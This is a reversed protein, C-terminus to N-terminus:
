SFNSSILPTILVTVWMVPLVIVLLFLKFIDFPYDSRYIVHCAICYGVLFAQLYWLPLWFPLDCSLFYLSWCSFNSSILPTILVTYWMVPFVIVLLFLKFIDFPYDSRYIVHCSICHGVLFTQLYWLPLWFPLECSMFYLSWCSFNSSILTTILVTYWMVPFVIVLLFPKFIDFPYYSRYSSHCAICHGVLFTQLYWLPLWFPLDCSLCYLSWCSFSSSILPTILVTFWMVPFVIVLLFLKFIDCPYDSRYRVHCAICHGVLFTQLYWLPLWFPLDCSMFYLSWCSFNSSILTTILVTYWMVPFVIVLLFPKFIDFPYYSRYSSHCAICHGVLFTQLYWLPLWFPLDCSLCYLSWCSFSSSILPTILVTYWMVPLVIVLLFLKFINFHYDSRYSVHCAICHGVLFTQLYWLPLWFPLDCPLFYLSWCSFNSSILPTILVTFWMVPFVIVLLFLKFIDFPYYSRYSSHCAICHGVLVTQLYWLPLWFPLECSLCYLSWCSFNSSILPTILVTVWMVPLVIVLLFLKFIDFPYYSRYIVHCAICHGVLFAQLYWLPLWFPLDCSLFYLSWCSFNSSILPTILVTYWMVPFVIVLLFLKFIDFPYDSRYSVHCAICHGVLFTQLYWLPLWFPLDCPLFYLSWCSFNSSILSTILVTVWMVPLVIVLLFLKFIDCPYDSRYSVHCAICHGVLFTQLYWLPLWFPLDCSMFYLSWCSFNSSILPTILVTYWMVPFVIVLLFLKFIDFPYYSRYSSHCAICHGVLFTQLYWLPLWFPIDCSLFYLSWCSFNSSILPTILVTYWMVSFVIVLLFLKFIDFLYDSRYIVHCAICHGVLFTQLYWLPLWFPFWMVPFVIVLLFLKFIDFPYDSRYSVHCAICHGVLFTQLYWLPLWFPLECSLCYLSWCSFNSSILPTILVTSWMVPFVIVLLFLKFIDFFLKTILVTVWMVPLVIVLLFLKFIDFPYDSRYSVHCAICHGVLFTQLYWLPLWFPLDCSLFYLSWCSFNSSILTTILVTYWMVPFVIVLLFPKFIDFPYYSRYSSHCAICHGVLFTQLYWLPLWFPLDCSLCYLSWCSFSSSILPTILVTFWMVPFVIVLLFLKFIDFPYDSRYIVHCSICHGVLFTQLYWLPLWFPLECSLCYLSWCSFNSSIVPTILVTVWMVPVVIVLLFLKFIDTFVSRYIVHCSICHGVLFTQLYWLPLWFPIDCSLFYLSWCSFNSSILPTILVTVRIVPLVIVLLFLKFIDFPYDSRYIVHCAISYGVLFAQLYWLPLWFPLDCSLFYLSWCSFNSSILPTILVTYWMVPFVIVLLFLKFIDFPYDSRYIVHCAICHGVLFTQLYWLPLWFPLDCSLFYLSWCSCNSSILPTILVTVWMVPLVIVLLFLKFIDFPYVSRYSVHCAICHGVLFTQLYWLPLWFPLDCSLFYLSWCSFNSSILSTILVYSVHCVICHGVLLTQLYWLPLWFPLECSLCYLSWCSFNSSILPTILVTFWIVPLVIVLLFLKFIDFPYYSPLEFSLCYLSWCSCNSSILPTILVTVWMVPLVIVLLFLKFIDFPYDYRYSVHCAICHGVLFTQLYWLPLWFPLDCSLCYLSWCSFSSSILPTILVTFWMVPFVIVLLSLKFIDFPYDSRYIVHCSICHGVLFTQLYWLPLWFPIDCSLCYLLWCSFNSSILTTILVTVWMVPFVIVLLFLKFIDFPYDSRYIVHCSICHGVLFTQLYWLPLWFPLDFSLCYLSWCSFNSSILPTILVTVRIVPLVIVLLFLKFIDFPYDSRYSVHCSICHGVLFTQLYWLPLWFPLECSLFYLSWCSFNSSILSTILVTVWMVPLVSVLLFLKFIDFPYDSRYSVHCAICHGVLFTQLYWLPLLFPLEFSLCYFSWCSFNSSILPTILVIFWMVPLVIVLLFLKFIDFPYDSRYIVHCSICHGVLFTQLYWLPLWFPIDCSLFYLSWCSCNSSILPTILVTVWMVPLVIVLLFLKFIDFPYDSRYSVHCAICHGVLFTQLYWLPLWFPLDCSMFYLSWCSFNSSILTTILVTYWMVPFVIVLLFPKFIDFPYYSRYSSHCAICHGVLFTQLYWLPLWFPLDCSLCYLSWCSFSSSILPTILVTFWMVPFVIVLLFLKFIDFPYDSRYIVHCSICHGVLFTQLYWLPLWFPLECSLCYLSWCSFNSSIVPTILVTVWMVPVVIVLLFLKFIDFPYDSRYIVHCSICHGVLFTQLYWLPLWFPIDCSLFYLSWCSFNSSILPTILVTVRIVPLVIVLLFLKFIDFPYDSRYIVHCAISYGVLFAQLYWLPLWFPLDCSLFYLSWCSFNSSILPTILVTYWMVPFVIVLLFLKFIDFPYDSRYRCAICHGVLFTQLYWLPLWFPLDCSLFYLSWCSCNSSILPTILVTVWMVDVAVWMVSMCHGVLFTQLYWLPLWFPLECSLCYLSWCSFNSSILPTIPLYDSRYIVHCSVIVLLFLKFIDFLYDARLECSLCYLSLCTFNSSILPTILVTVWMVPLVIVLLFLKFIDFPYDSRYIVHYSICHGVLFTQLYWLPLSFPIDCSLFYLSWCSFNSSILPTILVTVWMVPLVIVLLFLKFIDFPYDSRYIVHCAICHCCSFNSSILPYDSRYIMHCAICHGVIFTQLYWLPLWFPLECSLCYLSWCSFNSSILPNLWFPLDCSMFYLSWCSFNSSILPTILVTYWMVPFVIVLLFPKFIDFPYDSRYSSHCAICHGVLFTQLYWLPLWFPLDCSLCYLSWCSFSSSILPTILVTFWMVPFVIVLLFLKFIDFPYDSRYIVHCSICHGVLFTQLYWLPLWFPLECSLCYWSWCSFNSSILPYDSRYSVHCASCHGVLFTQLYWLPLWFPLDCSMFYLSWCSFNSSILTTILVTIVHCSICHGVLFTQLYWLPLLFPLEFSLCYLSWCSFNSSILPTILVTFWMVPLVIWCSFNSSILPTILVTCMVPFVIVLLFLKFIDFPYDSRYIVHCAICHGDLFTQLYWLPLWFPLDCSLFYLSWCSCNSSILPTILVTVWMVPLVIVLLFLKFIDFPYDSRYSVHCAICHGVLFTQLYWLPLWFPIDCSLFYLSWCSFNSSILSTILVYSVHCAICHGVLFTQLYWLPLWFPLECSLCYLSWCSFNSSILPTILVTFWMVPFVIVLLFLKFINFHYDSRYIM